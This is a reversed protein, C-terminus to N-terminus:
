CFGVMCSWFNLVCCFLNRLVVAYLLVVGGIGLSFYFLRTQLKGTSKIGKLLLSSHKRQVYLILDTRDVSCWHSTLLHRKQYFVLLASSFACM